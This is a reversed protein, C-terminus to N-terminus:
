TGYLVLPFLAVAFSESDDDNCSSVALYSLLSLSKRGSRRM